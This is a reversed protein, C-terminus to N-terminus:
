RGEDPLVAGLVAPAVRREYWHRHRLRRRLGSRIRLAHECDAHRGQADRGGRESHSKADGAISPLRQLETVVHITVGNAQAQYRWRPQTFLIVQEVIQNVDVPSFVEGEERQRFFERLRNVVSAADGAVTWIMQLYNQAKESNNLDEPRKILLESFGVIMALDNNFGHAVGSAMQGLASALHRNSERLAVESRDREIEATKRQTVDEVTGEYYVGPGTGTVVARAGESVWILAGDKRRVQSEFGLVSQGADLLAMLEERRGPDVYIEQSVDAVSNIL